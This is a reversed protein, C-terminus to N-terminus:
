VVLPVADLVQRGRVFHRRALNGLNQTIRFRPFTWTSIPRFNAGLRLLATCWSADVLFDGDHDCLEVVLFPHRDAFDSRLQLLSPDVDRLRCNKTGVLVSMSFFDALAQALGLLQLAAPPDQDGRLLPLLDLLKQAFVLQADLVDRLLDAACRACNASDLLNKSRLLRRFVLTSSGLRRMGPWCRRCRAPVERTTDGNQQDRSDFAGIWPERM